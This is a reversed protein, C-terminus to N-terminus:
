SGCRVQYITRKFSVLPLFVDWDTLRDTPRDTPQETVRSGHQDTPGGLNLFTDCEALIREDESRVRITYILNSLNLSNQYRMLFLSELYGM